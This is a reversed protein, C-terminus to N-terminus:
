RRRRGHYTKSPLLEFIASMFSVLENPVRDPRLNVSYYSPYASWGKQWFNEQVLHALVEGSPTSITTKWHSGGFSILDTKEHTSVAIHEFGAGKYINYIKVKSDWTFWPEAFWDEYLMYEPGTGDCQWLDFRMGAYLGWPEVAEMVVKQGSESSYTYAYRRVMGFFLELDSWYGIKTTNSVATDFVDVEDWFLTVLQVAKTSKTTSAHIMQNWHLENTGQEANCSAFRMWAFVETGLFIVVVLLICFFAHQRRSPYSSLFHQRREDPDEIALPQHAM